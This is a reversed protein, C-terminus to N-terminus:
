GLPGRIDAEFDRPFPRTLPRAKTPGSPPLPIPPPRPTARLRCSHFRTFLSNILCASATIPIGTRIGNLTNALRELLVDGEADEWMQAVILMSSHKADHKYSFDSPNATRFRSLLLVSHCTFFLESTRGCFLPMIIM